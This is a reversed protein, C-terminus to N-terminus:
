MRWMNCVMAEFYEDSQIAASLYGFYDFFAPWAVRREGVLGGQEYVRMM